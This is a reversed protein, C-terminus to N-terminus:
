VIYVEVYLDNWQGKRLYDGNAKRYALAQKYDISFDFYLNSARGVTLLQRPFRGLFVVAASTGSGQLDKSSTNSRESPFSGSTNASSAAGVRLRRVSFWIVPLSNDQPAHYRWEQRTPRKEKM